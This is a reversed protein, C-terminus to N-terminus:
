VPQDRDAPHVTEDPRSPEVPARWWGRIRTGLFQPIGDDLERWRESRLMRQVRTEVLRESLESIAFMAVMGVAARSEWAWGGSHRSIFWFLPYHWLYLSLSRRGLFALPASGLTRELLRPATSMACTVVFLFLTADLVVGPWGVFSAETDTLVLVPVLAVTSVVLLPRAFRRLVGLYPLLVAALAGTLPADMRTTTQLLARYAGGDLGFVHSRWLLAAVLLTGLSLALWARRRGLLYVLALVLLFIQFDVSLYWLHGLDPRATLAHGVLFWNWTYTAIRFVSAGTDANPYASATDTATVILVAILLVYLQGSLRVYRRVSIVGVHLDTGSDVRRLLTRTALFAGVVFFISVAFNGSTFWPNLTKHSLLKETPWLTWGHSLVVLVIAVGRIGDLLRDRTDHSATAQEM